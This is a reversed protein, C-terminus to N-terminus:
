FSKMPDIIQINPLRKKLKEFQNDNLTSGFIFLQKLKKIKGIKEIIYDVDCDKALSIRLSELKKLDQVEKPMDYIYLGVFSLSKINEFKEIWSPIKFAIGNKPLNVGELVPFVLLSDNFVYVTEYISANNINKLNLFQHYDIVLSEKIQSMAYNSIILTFISIAINKKYIM